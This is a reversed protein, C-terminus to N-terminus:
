KSEAKSEGQQPSGRLLAQIDPYKQDVYHAVAHIDSILEVRDLLRAPVEFEFYLTGDKALAFKAQWIEENMELLRRYVSAPADKPLQLVPCYISVFKGNRSPEVFVRLDPHRRSRFPLMFSKRGDESELVRYILEEAQLMKELKSSLDQAPKPAQASVLGCAVAAGVLLFWWRKLM